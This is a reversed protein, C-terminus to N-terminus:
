KAAVELELAELVTALADERSLWKANVGAAQLKAMRKKVEPMRNATNAPNLPREDGRAKRRNAIGDLCEQLSTTLAIVIVPYAPTNAVTDGKAMTILRKVDSEVILGEYLVDEGRNAHERVLDYIYDISGPFSITDCGGCPTEYHGVVWLPKANNRVCQYGIPQKRGGIFEPKILEYRDMVARVIVSKGTGSTGRLNIIM